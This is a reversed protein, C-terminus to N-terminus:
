AFSRSDPSGHTYGSRKYQKTYSNITRFAYAIDEVLPFFDAVAETLSNEFDVGVEDLVHDAGDLEAYLVSHEEAAEFGPRVVVDDIGKQGVAASLVEIGLVVEDFDDFAEGRRWGSVLRRASGRRSRRRAGSWPLLWLLRRVSRGGVAWPSRCQPSSKQVSILTRSARSVM